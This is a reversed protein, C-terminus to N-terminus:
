VTASRVAAVSQQDTQQERPRYRERHRSPPREESRQTGDWAKRDLRRECCALRGSHGARDPSSRIQLRNVHSAILSSATLVILVVLHDRDTLPTLRHALPALGCGPQRRETCWVSVVM